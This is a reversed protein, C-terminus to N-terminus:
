YFREEGLPRTKFRKYQWIYQDPKERIAEEILANLRTADFVPDETPFNEIPPSLIVEYKFDEDRRCFRIPIVAAGSLRIIRSMSTLSATQIGFFPAFVSRKRGGDIDYAYWIAMNDNLARLLQRVRHSPIYNVYHKQRFRQHIFSILKKKHPKYMVAFTYKKGLVRGVLELCTYHPGILVIGKGKELAAAVYEYGKVDILCELKHDPLWWSMASEILGVGLSIFSKKVLQNQEKQHLEPFCLQINIRTINTMKTPLYYLLLGLAQGIRIQWRHPLRTVSWLIGLGLWAPWYLPNALSNNPTSSM